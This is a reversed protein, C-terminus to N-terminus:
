ARLEAGFRSRLEDVIRDRVRHADDDTLTKEPDRLELSYALSKRGDPIQDGEYVDFLRVSRVEPEGAVRISSLVDTSAVSADVVVALDLLIPPFRPVEEARPRGPSAAFVPGLAIEIVTCGEPVDFRDCVDPHLEGVAGLERGGLRVRAARTPHFPMGTAPVSEPTAVRLSAFLAELVGKAGFMDWGRRPERWTKPNRDGALVVGLVLAEDPLEGEGPEFVRAVEFLAVSTAGHAFNRGTSRLLNPLLTTRVATRDETTPNSLEVLRRAPHDDPLGLLDADQPGMFSNTWAEQLGFGVLSRRLTRELAQERELGGKRGPPITAPLRELGALRGVEEVLDIERELDQRYSPPIVVIKGDEDAPELQIAALYAIQERPPISIGLIRDTREPRLTLRPRELRTPYQDAVDHAAEGGALEAILHACRAAAVPVAEPDMKREFRASAETRLLHRRSTYAVSAHDFHAAELIIASTDESVESDEGGMVGALALVKEPDTILLDDPHLEREVDDLTTLKEGKRARRVVIHRGAVRTADFAHLPHGLELLVYNTADVINSIPRMGSALLRRAIHAPSPGVKVGEIYRALYRTCGIPDEVEVKVGASIESSGGMEIPPPRLENGLLAAVERALGMVCMLDSRNPTIELELITDDLGLVKTVDEGLQVDGPLVLIGSHDKSIGLEMASCLMGASVEGRIKRETITMEPLEAGVQALPVMDGVGFNRAGCVVRQTGGDGRKVDVLTLNDANPHEHIELVEAAVVGTIDKGPRRIEEVKTGSFSLKHALEDVEVDVDVFDRLWNVSLRM